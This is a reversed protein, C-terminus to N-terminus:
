EMMWEYIMIDGDQQDKGNDREEKKKSNKNNRKDIARSKLYKHTHIYVFTSGGEKAKYM